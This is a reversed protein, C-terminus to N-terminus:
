QPWRTERQAQRSRVDAPFPWKWSEGEGLLRSSLCPLLKRRGWSKSPMSSPYPIKEETRGVDLVDWSKHQALSLNQSAFETTSACSHGLHARPLLLPLAWPAASNDRARVRVQSTANGNREWRSTSQGVHSKNGLSHQWWLVAVPRAAKSVM